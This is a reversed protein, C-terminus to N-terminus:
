PQPEPLTKIDIKDYEAHTGVWMVNVVGLQYAVQAILRYKKGKINFITRNKFPADASPFTQKLEAFNRWAASETTVRWSELPGRLDAHHKKADELLEARLVKM